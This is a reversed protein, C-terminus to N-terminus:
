VIYVIFTNLNNKQEVKNLTRKSSTLATFLNSGTSSVLLSQNWTSSASSESDSKIEIEKYDQEHTQGVRREQVILVVLTLILWAAAFVWLLISYVSFEWIGFFVNVIAGLFTLRGIWWHLQM